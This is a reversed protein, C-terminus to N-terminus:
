GLEDPLVRTSPRLLTDIRGLLAPTSFPKTVYDNAGHRFSAAIEEDQVRGSLMVVPVQSFGRITALVGLGSMDPLTVDLLVLDPRATRVVSLAEHGTHACRVEFGARELAYRVLDTLATTM